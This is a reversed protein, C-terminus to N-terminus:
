FYADIFTSVHTCCAMWIGVVEDDDASAAGSAHQGLAQSLVGSFPNEQNLSTLVIVVDPYM